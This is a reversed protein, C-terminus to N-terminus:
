AMARTKRRSFIDWCFVAVAIWILLFSAGQAPRMPEEFLMLGQIFILTPSVFQTFAISSYEM